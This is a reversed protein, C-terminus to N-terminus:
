RKKGGGWVCECLHALAKDQGADGVRRRVARDGGVLLLLQVSCARLLVMSAQPFVLSRARPHTCCRGRGAGGTTTTTVRGGGGEQGGGPLTVSRILSHTHSLPLCRLRGGWFFGGGFFLVWFPSSKQHLGGGRARGVRCTHLYQAPHASSVPPTGNTTPRHTHTHTHTHSNGAVVARAGGGVCEGCFFVHPFLQRETARCGAPPAPTTLHHTHTLTKSFTPTKGDAAGEARLSQM